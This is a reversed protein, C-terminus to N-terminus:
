APPTFGRPEYRGEDIYDAFYSRQPIFTLCCVGQKGERQKAINVLTRNTLVEAGAENKESERQILLVTNADQEISGSDRLDTLRPLRNEKDNTRNLQSLLIIPVHLRGAMKKIERTIYSIEQVRNNDNKRGSAMLQLYDIIILSLGEQNKVTTAINSVDAPTLASQSNIMIPLKSVVDLGHLYAGWKDEDMDKPKKLDDGSLFVFGANPNNKDKAKKAKRLVFRSMVEERTMEMSFMLVHKGKEAVNVAITGALASKGHGPRGAIVILHGPEFSTVYDDLDTLGTKICDDGRNCRKDILAALELAADKASKTEGEDVKSFATLEAAIPLIRDEVGQTVDGAIDSIEMAKTILRRRLGYEAVIHAQTDVPFMESCYAIYSVYSIGGVKELLGDQKLKEVLTVNNVDEGALIMESIAIYALKNQIHSFDDPSIIKSVEHLRNNRTIIACLIQREAEPNALDTLKVM